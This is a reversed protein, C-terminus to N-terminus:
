LFCFVFPDNNVHKSKVYNVIESTNADRNGANFFFGCQKCWMVGFHSFWLKDQVSADNWEPFSRCAETFHLVQPQHQWEISRSPVKPRVGHVFAPCPGPSPLDKSPLGNTFVRTTIQQNQIQLSGTSNGQM